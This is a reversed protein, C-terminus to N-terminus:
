SKILLVLKKQWDEAIATLDMKDLIGDYVENYIPVNIESGGSMTFSLYVEKVNNGTTPTKKDQGPNKDGIKKVKCSVRNDLRVVDYVPVTHYYVSVFVKNAADIALVRTPLIVEESIHLNNGSVIEKYVGLMEDKKLRKVKGAQRSLLVVVISVSLIIAVAIFLTENM